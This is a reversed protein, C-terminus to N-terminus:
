VTLWFGTVTGPAQGESTILYGFTEHEGFVLRVKGDRRAAAEAYTFASLLSGAAHDLHFGIDALAASGYPRPTAIFFM